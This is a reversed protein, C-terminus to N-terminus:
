FARCFWSAIGQCGAMCGSSRKLMAVVKLVFFDVEVTVVVQFSYSPLTALHFLPLSVPLFCYPTYSHGVKREEVENHALMM